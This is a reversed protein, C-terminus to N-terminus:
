GEYHYTLGADECYDFIAVIKNNCSFFNTFGKLYDLFKTLQAEDLATKSHNRIM